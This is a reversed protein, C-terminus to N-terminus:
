QIIKAEGHLLLYMIWTSEKVWNATNGKGARHVYVTIHLIKDQQFIMWARVEMKVFPKPVCEQLACM